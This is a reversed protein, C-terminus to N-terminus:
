AALQPSPRCTPEVRPNLSLPALKASRAAPAAAHSALVTRLKLKARLLRTGVTQAPIGLQRAVEDYSLGDFAFLTFTRKLPESLADAADRVDDLDLGAWAPAPEIEDAPPTARPAAWREIEVRARRRRRSRTQDVVLRYMITRMWAHLNTGIEFRDLSALARELADHLLDDPDNGPGALRLAMRRLDALEDPGFLQAAAPPRRAPVSAENSPRPLRRMSRDSAPATKTAFALASTAM